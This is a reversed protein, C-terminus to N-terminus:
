GWTQDYHRIMRFRVKIKDYEAMSILYKEKFIIYFYHFFYKIKWFAWAIIGLDAIM